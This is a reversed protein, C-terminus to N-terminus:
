RERWGGGRWEPRDPEGDSPYSEGWASAPLDPVDLAVMSDPHLEEDVDPDYGVEGPLLWTGGCAAREEEAWARMGDDIVEGARYARRVACRAVHVGCEALAELADAMGAPTAMREALACEHVDSYDPPAPREAPEPEPRSDYKTSWRMQLWRLAV